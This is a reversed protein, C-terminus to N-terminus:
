DKIEVRHRELLTGTSHDVSTLSLQYSIEAQVLGVEAQTLETQAELVLFIQGAGLDYKRQESELTQRALDRAVKAAELSLKAQELQHVANLVELTIAQQERRMLYLDNRKSATARGLEAQAARNRVPLNLQLTVAYTPFNFHFLQSLADGLGGPILTPPTATSLQNGGVGNSSYNGVLELDPRIDNHALRIGADDVLLQQRAAELEPRRSMALELATKADTSLLEGEPEP